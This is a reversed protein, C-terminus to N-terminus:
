CMPSLLRGSVGRRLRPQHKPLALDKESLFKAYGDLIGQIRVGSDTM